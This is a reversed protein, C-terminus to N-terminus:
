RLDTVRVFRSAVLTALVSIAIMIAAVANFAPTVGYHQLQGFLYIPLTVTGGNTFLTVLFEDISWAAALLSAGVIAPLMMPVLVRRNATAWGAGLDRAADVVSLDLRELRALYIYVVIPFTVLVHGIVVTTLGLTIPLRSILSILAVGLILGPVLIPVAFTTALAARARPRLRVLGLATPYALVVDISATLVAAKLTNLLASRFPANSGLAAFWRVSFGAFSSTSDQANFAFLVVTVVPLFLFVLVLVVFFWSAPGAARRM